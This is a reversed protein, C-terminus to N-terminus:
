PPPGVIRRVIVIRGIVGTGRKVTEGCSYSDANCPSIGPSMPVPVAMTDVDINISVDIIVFIDVTFPVRLLIAASFALPLM